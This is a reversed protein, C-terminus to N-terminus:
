FLSEELRKINKRSRVGGWRNGKIVKFEAKIKRVRRIRNWNEASMVEGPDRTEKVEKRRGGEVYSLRTQVKGTRGGSREGKEIREGM